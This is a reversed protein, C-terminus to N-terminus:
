FIRVPNKLKKLITELKKEFGRKLPLVLYANREYFHSGNPIHTFLNRTAFDAWTYTLPRVWYVYKGDSPAYFYTGPKNLWSGSPGMHFNTYELRLSFFGYNDKTNLLGVWNLDDETRHVLGDPYDRSEKLSKKIIKGRKNRYILTDFLERYLVMEDNRVAIVGLDKNFSLLTETIFYPSDAELIYKIELDVEKIKQLPGRRTSSYLLNGLIENFSPPPDWNFSHDWAVGPIYVGPNWHIVGVENHLKLGLSPYDIVNIQGNKPHFDLRIHPNEISKGWGEGSIEWSSEDSYLANDRTKALVAIRRGFRKMDIPFAIKCTTTEPYDAAAREPPISDKMSLIQYHLINEGTYLVFLRDELEDKRGNFTWYVIEGDRELGMTEELCATRYFGEEVFGPLGGEEPSTGDQVFTIDKVSQSSESSHTILIKYESDSRWAYDLHIEYSGAELPLALNVSKGDKFAFFVPWTQGNISVDIIQPQATKLEYPIILRYHPFDLDPARFEVDANALLTSLIIVLFVFSVKKM